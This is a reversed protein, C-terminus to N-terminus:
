QYTALKSRRPIFRQAAKLNGHNPIGWGGFKTEIFSVANSVIQTTPSNGLWGDM